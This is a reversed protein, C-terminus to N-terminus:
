ENTNFATQAVAVTAQSPAFYATQEARLRDCLRGEPLAVDTYTIVQDQPIDRKLRCGPSLGM